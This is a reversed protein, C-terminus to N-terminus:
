EHGCWLVHQWFEQRPDLAQGVTTLLSALRVSPVLVKTVFCYEDGADFCVTRPLLRGLQVAVPIISIAGDGDRVDFPRVMGAGDSCLEGNQITKVSQSDLM